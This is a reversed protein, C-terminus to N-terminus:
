DVSGTASWSGDAANRVVRYWTKGDGLKMSGHEADRMMGAVHVHGNLYVRSAVHRVARDRLERGQHQMAVALAKADDTTIPVGRYPAVRREGGRAIGRPPLYVHEPRSVYDKVIESKRPRKDTPILFWEGQRLADAPVGRPRLADLAADVTRPKRDERIRALFYRRHKPDDNRDLGSVYLRGHFRFLTEGLFHDIHEYKTGDPRERMSKVERDETVHVIAIEAIQEDRIGAANLASFPLLARKAGCTACARRADDQHGKTTMSPANDANLIITGDDQRVAVTWREYSLLRNGSVSYRIAGMRPTLGHQTEVGFRARDNVKAYLSRREPEGAVFRRAIESDKSAM